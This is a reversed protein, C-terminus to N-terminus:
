RVFSGVALNVRPFAEFRQDIQTAYLIDNVLPPAAALKLTGGRATLTEKIDLLTELGASDVLPVDSFDFVAHPPGISVIEQAIEKLAELHEQTLPVDGWIVHVAGQLNREFM